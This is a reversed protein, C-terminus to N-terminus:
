AAELETERPGDVSLALPITPEEEPVTIIRVSVEDGAIRILNFATGPAGPGLLAGGGNVFRLGKRVYDGNVHVHGHLVLIVGAERFLEILRKKRRLKMTQREVAGWVSNLTGSGVPAIKNFHHHILVVKKKMELPAAHLLHRLRKFQEDDVEGNSGLPNKVRSYKAVSNVGVLVIPGLVKAFPFASATSGYLCRGFAEHFYERFEEIRKRYDTHKCRQPFTPIDDASHVGGFVDHNGIVVSLKHPELLGRNKLLRRAIEFDRRDADAAIDGTIVVHEVGLEAVSDLLRRARRLNFRKHESSLHFDALHAITISDTM